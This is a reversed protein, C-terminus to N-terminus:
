GKMSFIQTGLKAFHKENFTAVPVARGKATAAIYADAFGQKSERALEIASIALQRDLVKLNPQALMADLAELIEVNTRGYSFRLVWAVEFFVPPGTVLHIEGKEALEFLRAAEEGQEEHDLALLRLFINSDVFVEHADKM